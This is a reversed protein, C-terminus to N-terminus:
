KCMNQTRCYLGERLFGFDKSLKLKKGEKLSFTRFKEAIGICIWWIRPVLIPLIKKEFRLTIQLKRVVANRILPGNSYLLIYQINILPYVDCCPIGQDFRSM